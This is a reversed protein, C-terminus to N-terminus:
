GPTIMEQKRSEQWFTGGPSILPAQISMRADGTLGFNGYGIGM